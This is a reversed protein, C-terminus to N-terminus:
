YCGMKTNDNGQYAKNCSGHIVHEFVQFEEWKLGAESLCVLPATLMFREQRMIRSDRFRWGLCVVAIEIFPAAALQCSVDGDPIRLSLAQLAYVHM